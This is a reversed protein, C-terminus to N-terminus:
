ESCSAASLKVSSRGLTPQRLIIVPSPTRSTVYRIWPEDGPAKHRGERILGPGLHHCSCRAYPAYPGYATSYDVEEWAAQRTYPHRGQPPYGLTPDPSLRSQVREANELILVVIQQTQKAGVSNVLPLMVLYLCAKGLHGVPATSPLVGRCRTFIIIPPLWDADWNSGFCLRSFRSSVCFPSNNYNGSAARFARNCNRTFWLASSM